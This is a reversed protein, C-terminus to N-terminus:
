KTKWNQWFAAFMSKPEPKPKTIEEVRYLEVNRVDHVKYLAISQKDEKFEMAWLDQEIGVWEMCM